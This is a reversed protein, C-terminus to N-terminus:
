AYHFHTSTTTSSSTRESVIVHHSTTITVGNFMHFTETKPRNKARKKRPPPASEGQKAARAPNNSHTSRSDVPQSPAKGQPEAKNKFEDKVPEQNKAGQAEELLQENFMDTRFDILTGPLVVRALHQGPLLSVHVPVDAEICYQTDKWTFFVRGHDGRRMNLRRARSSTKNIACVMGPDHLKSADVFSDKYHRWVSM